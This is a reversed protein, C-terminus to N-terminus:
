KNMGQWPVMPMLGISRCPLMNKRGPRAYKKTIMGLQRKQLPSLHVFKLGYKRSPDITNRDNDDAATGFVVRAALSRLIIQNTNSILDILIFKDALDRKEDDVSVGVGGKSLDTVSFPDSAMCGQVVLFIDNNIRYRTHHRLDSSRHTSSM